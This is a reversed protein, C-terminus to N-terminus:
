LGRTQPHQSILAGLRGLEISVDTKNLLKFLEFIFEKASQFRAERDRALARQVIHNVSEPLSPNLEMVSPITCAAVRNLVENQDAGTFLKRGTLTEFLVIGVSFLDTRQDVSEANAAEPSMYSPTGRLTGPKADMLGNIEAVGFDTLKVKGDASLLINAPSVDRHVVRAKSPGVTGSHVYDLAQLVQIVIGVALNLDLTEQNKALKRMLWQLTQGPVLEQVMLFNDNEVVFQFTRVINPHKLQKTLRAENSFAVVLKADHLHCDRLRKLAVERPEDQTRWTTSTSRVHFVEAMGGVAIKGLLEYDGLVHHV